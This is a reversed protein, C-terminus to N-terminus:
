AVLLAAKALEGLINRVYETARQHASQPTLPTNTTSKAVQAQLWEAVSDAIASMDHTGDLQRLLTCAPEGLAISQLKMNVAKGDGSCARLRAYRSATPRESVETIFPDPSLSLEVLGSAYCNLLRMALQQREESTPTAADLRTAANTVLQDFRMSAPRREALCAMASKMLPDRTELAVTGGPGKYEAPADSALDVSGGPEASSAVYFSAVPEPKLSHDLIVDAHCLLTQRFMRNRLFDMYQEMHLLDPSIQRLTHEAQAGFRSAVMSTIQAEGLYQLDNEAARQTFQHFYLPENFEELHEHLLYNDPTMLLVALEQRMLSSYGGDGCAAASRALFALLGRAARVRQGPDSFQATHYCLMERIAGRAHWGPYCNYSVYAVGQESLNRKCIALIKQQVEPPVWSYVGHVLIYDFQGISEDLDLISAHRLQVNGLRLERVVARGDAIQRGSLDIGLFQSQPSILAMPIVNGGSACGLELVRCHSPHAPKMGFLTAITGLRDPATQAFACVSYPIEDYTNGASGESVGQHPMAPLSAAPAPAVTM